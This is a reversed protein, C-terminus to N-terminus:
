KFAISEKIFWIDLNYDNLIPTLGGVIPRDIAKGYGKCLSYYENLASKLALLKTTVQIQRDTEAYVTLPVEIKSVYDAVFSVIKTQDNFVIHELLSWEHINILDFLALLDQVDQSNVEVMELMKERKVAFGIANNAQLSDVTIAKLLDEAIQVRKSNDDRTKFIFSTTIEIVREFSTTLGVGNLKNYIQQIAGLVETARGLRQQIEEVNKYIEIKDM